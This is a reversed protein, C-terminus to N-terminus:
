DTEEWCRDCALCYYTTTSTNKMKNINVGDKYIPPCYLATTYSGKPTYYSAGCHPCKKNALFNPQLSFSDDMMNVLHESTLSSRTESVTTENPLPNLSVCSIDVISDLCEITGPDNTISSNNLIDIIENIKEPVDALDYVGNKGELKKIKM